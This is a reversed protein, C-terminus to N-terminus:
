KNLLFVLSKLLVITKISTNIKQNKLFNFFSKSKVHFSTYQNQIMGFVQLAYSNYEDRPVDDEGLPNWDTYLVEEIKQLLEKQFPKLKTM